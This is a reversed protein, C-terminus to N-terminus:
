EISLVVYGDSSRRASTQAPTSRPRAGRVLVPASRRPGPGPGLAPVPAAAPFGGRRAASLPLRRLDTDAGEDLVATILERLPGALGREAVQISHDGSIVQYVPRGPDPRYPPPLDLNARRVLEQWRATDARDEPEVRARRISGDGLIRTVEISM